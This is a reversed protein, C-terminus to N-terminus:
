EVWRALPASYWNDLPWLPLTATDRV